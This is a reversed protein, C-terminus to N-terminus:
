QYILMTLLFAIASRGSHRSSVASRSFVCERVDEVSTSVQWTFLISPVRGASLLSQITVSGVYSETHAARFHHKREARDAAVMLSVDSQLWSSFGHSDLFRYSPRAGM